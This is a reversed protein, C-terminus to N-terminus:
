FIWRGGNYYYVHSFFLGRLGVLRNMCFYIVVQWNCYMIQNRMYMYFRSHTEAILLFVMNVEHLQRTDGPSLSFKKEYMFHSFQWSQLYLSGKVECICQKLSKQVLCYMKLRPEKRAASDLTEKRWLRDPFVISKSVQPLLQYHFFFLFSCQFKENDWMTSDSKSWLLVCKTHHWQWWETNM